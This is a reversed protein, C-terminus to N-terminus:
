AVRKLLWSFLWWSFRRRKLLWVVGNDKNRVLSVLLQQPKIRDRRNYKQARLEDLFSIMESSYPLIGLTHESGETHPNLKDVQDRLWELNFGCFRLAWAGPSFREKAIGLLLHLKTVETHDLRNAEQHALHIAKRARESLCWPLVPRSPVSIM